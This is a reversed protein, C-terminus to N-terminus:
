IPFWNDKYRIKIDINYVSFFHNVLLILHGRGNYGGRGGVADKPM